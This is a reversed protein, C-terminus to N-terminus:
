PRIALLLALLLLSLSSARLVVRPHLLCAAPPSRGMIRSVLGLTFPRLLLLVWACCWAEVRGAVALVCGPGLRQRRWWSSSSSNSCLLSRIFLVSLAALNLMVIATPPVLLASDFSVGSRDGGSSKLAADEQKGGDWDDTQEEVVVSGKPTVEFGVDSIGVLKKVVDYGAFLVASTAVMAESCESDWWRSPPIGLLAAEVCNCGYISAWALVMMLCGWAQLRGKEDEV